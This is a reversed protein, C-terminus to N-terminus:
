TGVACLGIRHLASGEGGDLVSFADEYGWVGWVGELRPAQRLVPVVASDGNLECSGQRHFSFRESGEHTSDTVPTRGISSLAVSAVVFRKQGV